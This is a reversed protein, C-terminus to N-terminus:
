IKKDHESEKQWRRLDRHIFFRNIPGFDHKLFNYQGEMPTDSSVFQSRTRNTTLSTASKPRHFVYVVKGVGLKVLVKGFIYHYNSVPVNILSGPLIQYIESGSAQDCMHSLDKPLRYLRIKNHIQVLMYWKKKQM